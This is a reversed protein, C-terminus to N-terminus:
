SELHRLYRAAESPSSFKRAEIEGGPREMVVTVRVARDETSEERVNRGLIALADSRAAECTLGLTHLVQAAIGKEERLLGLLLHETGVHSHGLERAEVMALELAKKSRSTYPVEPSRDGTIASAVSRLVGGSTAPADRGPKVAEMLSARIRSVDLGANALVAAAVSNAEGILGLLIHETGVYNHRLALAEQRARMLALRVRQTFNYGNM